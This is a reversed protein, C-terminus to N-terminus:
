TAVRFADKLLAISPADDQGDLTVVDFRCRPAATELRALYFTAARTIRAQKKADVTAGAGGFQDTTRSRVEVFCLTDGDKAVVDIEGGRFRVNREVIVYGERVLFAAAREEAIRGRAVTSEDKEGRARARTM